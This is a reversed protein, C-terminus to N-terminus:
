NGINTIQRKKKKTLKVLPKDIKNVKLCWRKTESIKEIAKRNEIKNIESRIKIIEKERSIKSRVQEQKELKRLYFNLNSIKCKEEKGIYANLTLFKGRLM